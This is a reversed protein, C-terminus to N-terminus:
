TTSPKAIWQALQAASQKWTQYPMGESAPAQQKADLVLWQKIADALDRGQKANFYSAHKGAVEHFVPIDRALIPLKHKAAEILPLGFGEAYSAALLCRCASYIEQLFEDSAGEIWFLRRGSQPHSRLKEAFEAVKWGQKGVIVLNADCEERWLVEFAELAQAHGKRPELTGVMLFSPDARFASLLERANGPMGSTPISSELDAGNHFWGTSFSRLRNPRPASALWAALEKEIVQSVCIAGDSEAVVETLWRRYNEIVPPESYEPNLALLDHVVFKVQVGQRRLRQYFDAHALMIPPSLDLGLFVDRQSFEILDDTLEAAPSVGRMQAIYQRAYRYPQDVRAYIPALEYGAPPHELWENLISRVVRQIGTKADHAVLESIDLLLQRSVVKRLLAAKLTETSDAWNSWTMAESRPHEGRRYLGLWADLAGQLDASTTGSFYWAADGAVERFVPIDRAVIPLQHRAAEILPLGFGENLSASVLCAASRYIETLYADSIGQLWFLRKGAEPHKTLRDTFAEMKWGQRGVFVLNVDQGASWLGDIADLIQEQCKRPEITSVCLFSPRSRIQSLTKEADAPLQDANPAPEEVGNHVWTCEFDPSTVVDTDRIWAQLAEATAQSVCIAGDTLAIMRMLQEHLPGLGSDWFCEPMQIPLLDHVLFKVTVGARMLAQYFAGHAIQVHHQMDLGFFMDGRQWRIPTDVADVAEDQLGLLQQTYRRAYRYGQDVTAYVPEVDYGAPPSQLLCRLYNRVVRQVGTGADHQWLESIDLLLQRQCGTQENQALCASLPALEQEGSQPSLRKALAKMLVNHHSSRVLWSQPAPQELKTWADIARRGVIDWSFRKAQELGYQRLEDRWAQDRLVQVMKEVISPTSNPDFQVDERGVVEPLSSTNSCIVPAGCMMAELAPLGFGEHWSPFVFAECLNYMWLLEEDSIYGTLVLSRSDIGAADAHSRLMDAEYDPMKGAFVLQVDSRLELPLRAYAEILRPLNKREDAGGSYLLFKKDIGFKTQLTARQSPSVTVLKFCDDTASSVSVIREDPVGLNELGEQRTFDSNSLLVAARKLYEVKRFYWRSVDPYPDLYKASNVLPILDHLLVSVRTAHDFEGVSTVGYGAVGEFLSGIHVVDPQLSAIFAERTIEAIQRRAENGPTREEVPGPAHWVLINDQPLLAEFESRISEIAEPMLGSLVLFVEHDGRNRVVGKAFGMVYRGIGRFRSETQAGQMDLVIRM